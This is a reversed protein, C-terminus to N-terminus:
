HMPQSKVKKYNESFIEKIKRSVNAEENRMPLLISIEAGIHGKDFVMEKASSLKMNIWYIIPIFIVIASIAQIEAQMMSVGEIFQRILGYVYAHRSGETM